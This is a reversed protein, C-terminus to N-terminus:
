SQFIRTYAALLADAVCEPVAHSPTPAKGTWYPLVPLGSLNAARTITGNGLCTWGRIHRANNGGRRGRKDLSDIEVRSLQYIVEIEDALMELKTKM